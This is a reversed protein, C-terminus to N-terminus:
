KGFDFFDESRGFPFGSSKKVNQTLLKISWYIGPNSGSHFQDGYICPFHNGSGYGGDGKRKECKCARQRWLRNGPNHDSIRCTSYVMCHDFYNWAGVGSHSFRQRKYVDQSIITATSSEWGTMEKLIVHMRFCSIQSDKM